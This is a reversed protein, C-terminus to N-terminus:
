TLEEIRQRADDRERKYRDREQELTALLQKYENGRKELVTIKKVSEKAEGRLADREGKYRAMESRLFKPDEERGGEGPAKVTWGHAKMHDVFRGQFSMQGQTHEAIFQNEQSGARYHARFDDCLTCGRAHGIALAQDGFCEWPGVYTGTSPM